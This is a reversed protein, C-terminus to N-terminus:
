LGRTSWPNDKPNDEGRQQNKIYQELSVIRQELKHQQLQSKQFESRLKLLDEELFLLREEKSNETM